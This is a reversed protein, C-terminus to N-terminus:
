FTDFGSGVVRRTTPSIGKRILENDKDQGLWNRPMNKRAPSRGGPYNELHRPKEPKPKDWNKLVKQVYNLSRGGKEVTIKAAELARGPPYNKCLETAKDKLHPPLQGKTFNDRIFDTFETLGNDDDDIKKQITEKKKQTVLPSGVKTPQEAFETPLEALKETTPQEAFKQWLEWDKQFGINKKNRTILHREALKGLARSVVDKRLSTGIVIQFNAIYDVKKKFGYTKRIIFLLVQWQNPSLQCTALHDLIENAISTYGNELQPNAM